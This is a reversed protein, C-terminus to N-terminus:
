KKQGEDDSFFLIKRSDIFIQLDELLVENLKLRIDEIQDERLNANTEFYVM